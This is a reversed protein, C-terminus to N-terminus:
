TIHQAMSAPVKKDYGNIMYWSYIAEAPGFIIVLKDAVHHPHPFVQEILISGIRLFVPKPKVLGWKITNIVKMKM